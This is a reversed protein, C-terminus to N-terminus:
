GGGGIADMFGGFVALLGVKKPQSKQKRVMFARILIVMGLVLLYASIFPKVYRGNLIDSLLWAGTMGGAMGWFVLRLFLKKNINKFYLHSIGSAGTTFVESVHVSASAIAPAVNMGLLLSTCSVGYAMGLAGDILQAIMGAGIFFFLKSDIERFLNGHYAAFSVGQVVLVGALLILLTLITYFIRRHFPLRLFPLLGKRM